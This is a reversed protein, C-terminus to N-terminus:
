LIGIADLKARMRDHRLHGYHKDIMETSTGAMRAVEFSDIGNAIMESIATHRLSYMVITPPLKAAKAAEKIPKKWSDKNWRQGYETTFISADAIKDKTQEKFFQIASSSLSVIRHGTKGDLALTGQQRDFHKVSAKALEGPRAATFLMAKVLQRIDAACAEILASRQDAPLFSQRRRGVDKFKTVTKWGADTAVLRDHLALNLAAKLSALNRNASDKARRLDDEDEASEEIANIQEALWDKVHSTRLKSLDIRGLKSDYVLRKFRGEADSKSSAGKHLGLHKVYHECADKVTTTKTSVGADAAKSWELTAKAADDFSPLTGLAKYEQKGAENRRRAVWTGDGEALKRFGVYLGSQVRAFYPERRPPLKDRSTKSVISTAM